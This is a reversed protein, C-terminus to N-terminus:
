WYTVAKVSSPFPSYQYIRCFTEYSTRIHVYNRRTSPGFQILIRDFEESIPTIDTGPPFVFLFNDLYHTVNWEHLTDLVWHLAEAFLNFIRPSTRLGFPPFM